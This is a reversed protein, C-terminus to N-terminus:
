SAEESFGVLPEIGAKKLLADTIFEEDLDCGSVNFGAEKAIIALPTM